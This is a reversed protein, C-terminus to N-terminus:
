SNQFCLFIIKLSLQDSSLKIDFLCYSLQLQFLVFTFLILIRSKTLLYYVELTLTFDTFFKWKIRWFSHWYKYSFWLRLKRVGFLSEGRYNSIRPFLKNKAERYYFDFSSHKPIKCGCLRQLLSWSPISGSKAANIASNSKISLDELLRGTLLFRTVFFSIGTGNFVDLFFRFRWNGM